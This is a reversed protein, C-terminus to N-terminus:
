RNKKVAPFVEGVTREVLVEGVLRFCKRKADMPELTKMVVDHEAIEASLETMKSHIESLRQRRNQFEDLVGKETQHLNETAM